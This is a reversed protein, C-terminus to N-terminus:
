NSFTPNKMSGDLAQAKTHQYYSEVCKILPKSMLKESSNRQESNGLSVEVTRYKAQDEPRYEKEDGFTRM